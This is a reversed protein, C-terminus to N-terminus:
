FKEKIFEWRALYMCMYSLETYKVAFILNPINKSVSKLVVLLLYKTYFAFGHEDMNM